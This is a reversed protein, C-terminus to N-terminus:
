AIGDVEAEQVLKSITKVDAKSSYLFFVFFSM